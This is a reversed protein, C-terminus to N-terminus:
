CRKRQSCGFRFFVEEAELSLQAWPQLFVDKKNVTFPMDSTQHRPKVIFNLILLEVLSNSNKQTAFNFMENVFNLIETNWVFLKCNYTSFLFDSKKIKLAALSFKNKFYNIKFYNKFILTYMFLFKLKIM